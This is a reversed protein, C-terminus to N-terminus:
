RSCARYRIKSSQADCSPDACIWVHEVELDTFLNGFETIHCTELTHLTTMFKVLFSDCFDETEFQDEDNFELDDTDFHVGFSDVYTKAM